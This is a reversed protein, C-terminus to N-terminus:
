EKTQEAFHQANRKANHKFLPSRNTSIKASIRQLRRVKASNINSSSKSIPPGVGHEKSEQSEYNKSKIERKLKFIARYEELCEQPIDKSYVNINNHRRLTLAVADRLYGDSLANAVYSTVAKTECQRCRNSVGSSNKHPETSFKKLEKEQNCTWCIRKGLTALFNNLTGKQRGNLKKM